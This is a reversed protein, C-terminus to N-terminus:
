SYPARGEPSWAEPVSVMVRARGEPSWAEPVSASSRARGEPSWAEPVSATRMPEDTSGQAPQISGGVVSALLVVAGITNRLKLM